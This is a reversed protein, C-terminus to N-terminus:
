LKYSLGLVFTRGNKYFATPANKTGSYQYYTEDLLNTASASLGLNKTIQYSASLDLEKYQDTFDQSNLRGIDTFYQSRWSYVVRASFPGNEFYPIVNVTDHSLYPLNLGAGTDATAYTFNTQMGFGYWLDQQYMLSLGKVKASSANVPSSISYTQGNIVQDGAVSVVYNSIDRYFVEFGLMSDKSFYWEGAVDANTSEYPKLHPNGGSGTLTQTDISTAGALDSYRPRAVVKAISFRLTKTKDFDYVANFSPLFKGYSTHTTTPTYSSGDTSLYYTADDGTNIYRVGFNGRLKDREYDFQTYLDKTKEKVDFTSAYDTNFAGQPQGNLYSIVDGLNAIPWNKIDGSVDLGDYLGSPATGTGFQDLSIASTTNIRNGRARDSNDHDLYKLGFLLKTIPGLELDHTFDIQGYNESDRTVSYYIGGAQYQGGISSDGPVTSTNAPLGWNSATGNDYVVGAQKAGYNFSYGGSSLLFKMLYEPDKGGSASTTGAQTAVTWDDTKFDERLNLSKTTVSSRRYNADLEAYPQNGDSATVTGGTILGNNITVATFKNTDGCGPCVFRAESYNNYTGKVYVGTLNFENSANPKWQLAGQVGNRERTQQFYDSDIAVPMRATQVDGSGTVTASSPIGSGTTYGFFEVGAQSLTQKDHSATILFGFDGPADKWSYLVSGRPSGVNSRDNYSYGLSGRLTNSPLDLPRRTNIIVTGGISGEDIRAEPSKYVEMLGIIEPSLLTYNFTRGSTDSPNGGWDGSAITQGNVLVRNLAPDTGNISVKEGEGYLRDVAIGPLHSLSEAANTDPFKGIDEASIADVISNANRKVEMARQLSARYGTVTVTQPADASSAAPASAGSAPAPAAVQQAMAPVFMLAISSALTTQLFAAIRPKM